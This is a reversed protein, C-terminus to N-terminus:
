CFFDYDTLLCERYKNVFILLSYIYQSTLTLIQLQKYLQRCSDRKTENCNQKMYSHIVCMLWTLSQATKNPKDYKM